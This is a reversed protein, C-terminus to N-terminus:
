VQPRFSSRISYVGVTECDIGPFRV